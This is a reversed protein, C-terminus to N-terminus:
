QHSESMQYGRLGTSVRPFAPKNVTGDTANAGWTAPLHIQPKRELAPKPSHRAPRSARDDFRRNIMSQYRTPVAHGDIRRPAAALRPVQTPDAIRCITSALTRRVAVTGEAKGPFLADTPESAGRATAAIM